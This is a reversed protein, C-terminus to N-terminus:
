RRRGLGLLVGGIFVGAAGPAPVISFPALSVDQYDVPGQNDMIVRVWVSDDVINPVDWNFTHVSGASPDGAQYDDIIPIWNPGPETRYALDWNELEHPIAIEWRIEYQGGAILIEGGNPTHLTVHASAPAALLAAGILGAAPRVTIPM